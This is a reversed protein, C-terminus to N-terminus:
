RDASLEFALEAFLTAGLEIVGEDIDFYENHHGAAIDSGLLFFVAKGGRSQVKRMMWSVDESGGLAAVPAIDRFGDITRAKEAVLDVLEQDGFADIAEGMKEVTYEVGYMAAAGAVIEAARGYVYENLEDSGGRTEVKLLARSPIVNRGSGAQLVGVNVRTAGDKHPPIGALALSASAAALLANRGENPAGGAHAAVGKYLADFKTTCLFGEFSSALSGTPFGMGVHAGLFYDVDDLVGSMAVAKGGRVGEEAPQFVLKIVGTLEDRRRMLLEALGLGIATHADHGCAHMANRNLSAFGERFPRHREDKAEDVDVADIDFRFALVPGERGTDLFAVAGTYGDMREIWAPDAGQELARDIFGSLEAESPRGMVSDLDLVSKGVSVRYGLEELVGAIRATTRFETWGAEAHRHFERRLAILRERLDTDMLSTM